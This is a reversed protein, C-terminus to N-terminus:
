VMRLLGNYRKDMPRARMHGDKYIMYRTYNSNFGALNPENAYVGNILTYGSIEKHVTKITTEDKGKEKIEFNYDKDALVSYDFTILDKNMGNITNGDPTKVWDIGNESYVTCLIQYETNEYWAGVVKWTFLETPKERKIKNQIITIPITIAAVLLILIVSILTITKQSKRNLQKKTTKKNKKM